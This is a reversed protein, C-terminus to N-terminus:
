PSGADGRGARLMAVDAEFESLTAPFALDPDSLRRMGRLAFATGAALTVVGVLVFALWADVGALHTLVLAAGVLALLLGMAAVFLGAVLLGLRVAARQLVIRGESAAMQLTNYALDVGSDGLARVLAFIGRQDAGAPHSTDDRQM